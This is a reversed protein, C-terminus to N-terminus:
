SPPHKEQAQQLERAKQCQILVQLPVDILLAPDRYWKRDGDNRYEALRRVHARKLETDSALTNAADLIAVLVVDAAPDKTALKYYLLATVNLMAEPLALELENTPVQKLVRVCASWIGPERKTAYWWVLLGAAIAICLPAVLLDRTQTADSGGCGSLYRVEQIMTCLILTFALLIETIFLPLNVNKGPEAPADREPPTHKHESPRTAAAAVMMMVTFTSCVGGFICGTMDATMFMSVCSAGVFAFFMGSHFIYSMARGKWDTSDTNCSATFVQIYGRGFHDRPDVTPVIGPFVLCLAGAWRVIGNWPLGIGPVLLFRLCVLFQVSVTTMVTLSTLATTGRLSLSSYSSITDIRRLLSAPLQSLEDAIHREMLVSGTFQPATFQDKKPAIAKVQADLQRAIDEVQADLQGGHPV